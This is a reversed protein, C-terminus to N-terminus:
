QGGHAAKKFCEPLTRSIYLQRLFIDKIACKSKVTVAVLKYIEMAPWQLKLEHECRHGCQLCLPGYMCTAKAFVSATCGSIGFIGPIGRDASIGSSAFLSVPYSTLKSGEGEGSGNSCLTMMDAGWFTRAAVSLWHFLWRAMWPACKSARVLAVRTCAEAAM